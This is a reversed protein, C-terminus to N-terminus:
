SQASILLGMCIHSHVRSISRGRLPVTKSFPSRPNLVPQRQFFTLAVSPLTGAEVLDCDCVQHRHCVM